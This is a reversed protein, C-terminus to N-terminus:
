SQITALIIMVFWFVSYAIMGRGSFATIVRDTQPLEEDQVKFFLKKGELIWLIIGIIVIILVLVEYAILILFGMAGEGTISSLIEQEMTSNLINMSMNMDLSKLVVVSAVSGFFNMVAHLLMSYGIRGTRVYIIGFFIGITLAYPLQSLNGHFLGFMIGSVAVAVWEGYKVVRDIIFKRFFLEEFIPACVVTVIFMVPVSMNLALEEVPNIIPSGKVIGIITTIITGLLNSIILLAYSMCVAKLIAKIGMRHKEIATITFPIRKFFIAFVILGVIYLIGSNLVIELDISVTGKAALQLIVSVILQVITVSVSFITYIYGIQSYDRKASVKVESM